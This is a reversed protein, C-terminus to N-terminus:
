VAVTNKVVQVMGNLYIISDRVQAYSEEVLLEDVVEGEGRLVSIVCGSEERLGAYTPCITRILSVNVLVRLKREPDNVEIFSTM